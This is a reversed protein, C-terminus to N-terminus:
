SARVHVVSRRDARTLAHLNKVKNATHQELSRYAGLSRRKALNGVARIRDRGSFFICTRQLRSAEQRGCTGKCTPGRRAQGVTNEALVETLADTFEGYLTSISTSSSM